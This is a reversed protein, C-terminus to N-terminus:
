LVHCSLNGLDDIDVYYNSAILKCRGISGMFIIVSLNQLWYDCYDGSVLRKSGRICDATLKQIIFASHRIGFASHRIGFASHRIGFASHQIGFASHRFDFASHRIGSAPHQIGFASHQIGFASLRM